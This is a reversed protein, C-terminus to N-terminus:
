FETFRNKCKILNQDKSRTSTDLEWTKERLEEVTRISAKTKNLLILLDLSLIILLNEDSTSVVKGKYNLIVQVDDTVKDNNGGRIPRVKREDRGATQDFIIRTNLNTIYKRVQGRFKNMDRVLDTLADNM